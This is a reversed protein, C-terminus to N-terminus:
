EAVEATLSNRIDTTNLCASKGAKDGSEEVYTYGAATYPQVQKNRSPRLMRLLILCSQVIIDSVTM